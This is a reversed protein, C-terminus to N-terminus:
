GPHWVTLAVRRPKRFASRPLLRSSFPFSSLALAAALAAVLLPATLGQGGGQLPSTLDPRPGPPVPPLQRPPPAGAPATGSSRERHTGRTSPEDGSPAARPTTLAAAQPVAGALLSASAGAAEAGASPAAGPLLAPPEPKVLPVAAQPSTTGAPAAAPPAAPASTAGAVALVSPAAVSPPASPAPPPAPPRVAPAPPPAAPAPPLTQPAALSSAASAQAIAQDVVPQVAAATGPAVADVQALASEVATAVDGLGAPQTDAARAVGPGALVGFVVAALVCISHSFPKTIRKESSITWTSM